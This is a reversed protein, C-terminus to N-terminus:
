YGDHCKICSRGESKDRYNDAISGWNRPHPNARLGSGGRASHCNICTDGDSHCSQCAQLSRRAERSHDGSWVHSTVGNQHCTPCQNWTFLAHNPGIDSLPIDRFQRRHSLFALDSGRFRNHCQKCEEQDIHCRECTERNDLSKIPHLERWNSRHSKPTYDRRYNQSSLSADIGGGHHCDLCYAQDHCEACNHTGRSALIRHNRIWDATHNPAIGEGKHCANCETIKMGAYERHTEKQAVAQQGYLGVMVILLLCFPLKKM